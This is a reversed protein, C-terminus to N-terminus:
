IYYLYWRWSLLVILFCEVGVIWWSLSARTLHDAKGLFIKSPYKKGIRNPLFPIRQSDQHSHLFNPANVFLFIYLITLMLTDSSGLLFKLCYHDILKLWPYHCVNFEYLNFIGLINLLITYCTQSGLSCLLHASM